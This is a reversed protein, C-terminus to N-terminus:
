APLRRSITSVVVDVMQPAAAALSRQMFPRPDLVQHSVKASRGRSRRAVKRSFAKASAALVQRSKGSFLNRRSRPTTKDAHTDVGFELLSATFKTVAVRQAAGVAGSLVSQQLKGTQKAPPEGPKSPKGKGKLGLTKKLEKKLVKAAALLEPSSVRGLSGLTQMLARNMTLIPRSM